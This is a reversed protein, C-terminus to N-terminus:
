SGPEMLVASNNSPLGEARVVWAPLSQVAAPASSAALPMFSIALLAAALLVCQGTLQDWGEAQTGAQSNDTGSAGYSASAQGSASASVTRSVQQGGNSRQAGPWIALQGPQASAAPNRRKIQRQQGRPHRATANSSALAAARRRCCTVSGRTFAVQQAVAMM